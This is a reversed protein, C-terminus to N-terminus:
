TQCAPQKARVVVSLTAQEPYKVQAVARFSKWQSHYTIGHEAIREIARSREGMADSPVKQRSRSRAAVICSMQTRASM